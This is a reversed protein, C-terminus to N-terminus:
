DNALKGQLIQAVDRIAESAGGCKDPDISDIADWLLKRDRDSVESTGELLEKVARLSCRLPLEVMALAAKPQDDPALNELIAEVQPGLQGSLAKACDGVISAVWECVMDPRESLSGSISGDSYCLMWGSSDLTIVKLSEADDHSVPINRKELRQMARNMVVMAFAVQVSEYPKPPAKKRRGFLWDLIGM